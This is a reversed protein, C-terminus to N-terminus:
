QKTNSDCEGTEDDHPQDSKPRRLGRAHDAGHDEGIYDKAHDHGHGYAIGVSEAVGEHHRHDHPHLGHQHQQKIRHKNKAQQLQHLKWSQPVKKIACM